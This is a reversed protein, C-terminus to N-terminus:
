SSLFTMCREYQVQDIQGRLRDCKQRIESRLRDIVAANGTSSAWAVLADSLEALYSQNRGAFADSREAMETIVERTAREIADADEPALEILKLIYGSGTKVRSSGRPSRELALRYWELAAEPKDASLDGLISLFYYPAATQDMYRDLLAAAEEDLGAMTHLWVLMNLTSQFEGPDSAGAVVPAVRARVKNQLAPPVSVDGDGAQLAHLEFEPVFSMLQETASYQPNRQLEQAVALWRAVLEARGASPAPELTEITRRAELTLFIKNDPWLEPSALLGVLGSRLSAKQQEGLTPLGENGRDREGSWVSPMAKELTLVMFRARLRPALDPRGSYIRWFLDLAESDSLEVHQDQNWSHYALLELDTPSAEGPEGAAVETLIAQVPRFERIASQLLAGYREPTVDTPMRFLEVGSPSFLIVTPYGDISYREAWLQARDTDGDLYVPVFNTIADLFEPRTFVNQKLNHCPPCWDAGWYLFVPKGSNGATTFAEEVEGEFWAIDASATERSQGAPPADACGAVVLLLSLAASVIARM